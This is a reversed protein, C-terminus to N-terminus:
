QLWKYDTSQLLLFDSYLVFLLSFFFFGHIENQTNPTVSNFPPGYFEVDTYVEVVVVLCCAVWWWWWRRRPRPPEIAAAPESNEKRGRERQGLLM